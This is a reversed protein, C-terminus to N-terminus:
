AAHDRDPDAASTNLEVFQMAEKVLRHLKRRTEM